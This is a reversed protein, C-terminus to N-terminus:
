KIASEEYAEEYEHTIQAGGASLWSKVAGDWASLPKRGVVIDTTLDDLPKGIVGGKEQQTESRLGVAPNPIASKMLATELSHVEGLATADAPFYVPNLPTAIWALNLPKVETATKDTAAPDSGQLRYDRGEIGYKFFLYEETGFPAALRDLLALLSKARAPPMKKFVTFTYVGANLFTAAQGSGDWKHPVLGKWSFPEDKPPPWATGAAPYAGGYVIVAKGSMFHQMAQTDNATAGDPNIYGASWLQRALSMAQKYEDTVLNSTFKGDAVRWSNPAGTMQRLIYMAQQVQDLAYRTTRDDTVAKCLAIFEDGSTPQPNAGAKAAIDDRVKANANVVAIPIPVGYIKNGFVTTRWASTPVAALNPYTKVAAGSLWETLDQFKAELLDGLHSPTNGQPNLQMLDPLDNGAVITAVKAYYSGAPPPLSNIKLNANLRKNLEQWFLNKDVPTPVSTPTMKTVTVDGIRPLPDSYLRKPSAPYHVFYSSCGVAAAPYDPAVADSAVYSPLLDGAQASGGTMSAAPGGGSSADTSTSSGTTRSGGTPESGGGCAAALSGVGAMAGFALLRRRSLGRAASEDLAMGNEM